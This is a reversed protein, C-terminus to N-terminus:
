GRLRCASCCTGCGMRSAHWVCNCGAKALQGALETLAELSTSDLDPCEELSLVVAQLGPRSRVRDSIEAMVADANGFVHTGRAARDALRGRASGRTPRATWSIM